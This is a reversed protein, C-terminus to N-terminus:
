VEESRGQGVRAWGKGVRAWGKGVGAWGSGSRAKRVRGSGKQGPRAGELGARGKRVRGSGQIGAGFSEGLNEWLGDPASCRRHEGSHRGIDPRSKGATEVVRVV